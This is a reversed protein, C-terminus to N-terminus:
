IIISLTFQLWWTNRAELFKGVPVCCQSASGLTVQDTARDLFSAPVFGVSDTKLARVVWWSVHEEKSLVEFTDGEDFPLFLKRQSGPTSIGALSHESQSTQYPSSSCKSRKNEDDAGGTEKSVNPESNCKELKASLVPLTLLADSAMKTFCESLKAWEDRTIKMIIAM